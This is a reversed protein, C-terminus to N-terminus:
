RARSTTPEKLSSYMVALDVEVHTSDCPLCRALAAFSEGASM